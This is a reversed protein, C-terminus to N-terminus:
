IDWKKINIKKFYIFMGLILVSFVIIRSLTNICNIEGSASNNSFLTINTGHKTNL